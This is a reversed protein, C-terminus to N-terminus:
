NERRDVRWGARTLVVTLTVAVDQTTTRADPECTTTLTASVQVHTLTPGRPAEPPIVAAPDHVTTSCRQQVYDDWGAGGGHGTTLLRRDDHDLRQTIYPAVAGIWATPPKTYDTTLYAILWAVAVATPSTPLAAGGGNRTTTPTGSRKTARPRPTPPADPISASASAPPTTQTQPEAASEPSPPTPASPATCATLLALGALIAPLTRPPHQTM